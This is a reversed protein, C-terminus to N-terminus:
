KILRGKVFTDLVNLNDDLIIFDADYGVAIRGKKVGICNAPTESAM